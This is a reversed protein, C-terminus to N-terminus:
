LATTFKIYKYRKNEFIEEIFPFMSELKENSRKQALKNFYEVFIHLENFREGIVNYLKIQGVCYGLFSHFNRNYFKRNENKNGLM